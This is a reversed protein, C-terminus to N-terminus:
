KDMSPNFNIYILLSGWGCLLEDAEQIDRTVFVVWGAHAVEAQIGGLEETEEVGGIYNM